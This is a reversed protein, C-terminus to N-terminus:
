GCSGRVWCPSGRGVAEGLAGVGAKGPVCLGGCACQLGQGWHQLHHKAHGQHGQLGPHCQICLAAASLLGVVACAPLVAVTPLVPTSAPSPRTLQRAVGVILCRGCCAASSLLSTRERNHTPLQRHCGLEYACSLSSSAPSRSMCQDDAKGGATSCGTGTSALQTGAATGPVASAACCWM